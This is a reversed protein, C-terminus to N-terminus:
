EKKIERSLDPWPFRFLLFLLGLFLLSICSSTWWGRFREEVFVFTNMFPHFRVWGSGVWQCPTTQVFVHWSTVKCYRQKHCKQKNKKEEVCGTCIKHCGVSEVFLCFIYFYLLPLSLSLYEFGGVAFSYFHSGFLSFLCKLTWTLTKSLFFWGGRTTFM